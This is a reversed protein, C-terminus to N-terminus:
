LDLQLYTASVVVRVQIDHSYLIKRNACLDYANSRLYMAFVVIVACMSEANAYM